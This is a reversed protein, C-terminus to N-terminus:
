ELGGIAGARGDVDSDSDSDAAVAQGVTGYHWRALLVGPSRKAVKDDKARGDEETEM